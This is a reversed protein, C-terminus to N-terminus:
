QSQARRVELLARAVPSIDVLLRSNETHRIGENVHEAVKMIEAVAKNINAYDPHTEPTYKLLEQLLLRYRPIRQIPMILLATLELSNENQALQAAFQSQLSHVLAFSFSRIFSHVFSRVFSCIFSRRTLPDLMSRDVGHVCARCAVFRSSRHM